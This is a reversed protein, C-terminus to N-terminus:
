ILYNVRPTKLLKEGSAASEEGDLGQLAALQQKLNV